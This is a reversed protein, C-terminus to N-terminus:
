PKRIHTKPGVQTKWSVAQLYNKAVAGAAQQNETGAYLHEKNTKDSKKKPADSSKSKSTGHKSERKAALAAKIAAKKAALESADLRETGDEEEDESDTAVEEESEEEASYADSDESEEDQEADVEVDEGEEEESSEEESSMEALAAAKAAKAAKRKAAKREKELQQQKKKSVVAGSTEVSDETVTNKENLELKVDELSTAKPAKPERNKSPLPPLLLHLAPDRLAARAGFIKADKKNERPEGVYSTRTGFAIIEVTCVYEIGLDDEEITYKIHDATSTARTALQVLQQLSEVPKPYSRAAAARAETSTITAKEEAETPPGEEDPTAPKVEEQEDDDDATTSSTQDSSKQSAPNASAADSTSSNKAFKVLMGSKGNMKEIAAEAEEVTAFELFGFVHSSTNVLKVETISGCAQFLQKFTEETLDM